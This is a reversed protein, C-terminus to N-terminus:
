FLGRGSFARALTGEDVYDLSSGLPLGLALRSIKIPHNNLEKKIYLATADGELTSDFAMIVEQISGGVIRNLLRPLSLQEPGRNDMPSLLGGLVHYLGRYQRTQEIAFADRASAIVCLTSPNRRELDCFKCFSQDILCGCTDCNKLKEKIEKITNSLENLHSAPWNLLHFAFREASKNGVGPLRKLVEILKQLHDPYRM